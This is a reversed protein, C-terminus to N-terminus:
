KKNGKMSNLEKTTNQIDIAIQRKEQLDISEKYMEKLRLLDEEKKALKYVNLCDSFYEEKRGKNDEGLLGETEKFNLVYVLRNYEDEELVDFLMSPILEKGQSEKLYTFIKRDTPDKIYDDLIAISNFDVDKDICYNLGCVIAKTLADFKKSDKEELVDEMVQEGKELKAMDKKLADVSIKTYHSTNKLWEEKEAETKLTTIVRLANELYKKKQAADKIDFRDALIKFKFATSDLANDLAKQYENVGFRRIVEDPDLKDRLLVIKANVGEEELVNQALIAGKMGASDGDYCVYVKDCVYHMLKAQEKTLATGMSAVVNKFGADYVAIADMYGEVLILSDVNEKLKQKKVLNLGYLVKRKNFAITDSTNKYKAQAKSELTRGGFAVVQGFSDIIPIIVRNAYADYVKGDKTGAVGAEVMEEETYGKGKLYRIVSTWDPSAGLGFRTITSRSLGRNLLYSLKQSQSEKYLEKNYFIATEKLLSYARQRKQKKEALEDAGKGSFRPVEMGVQKALHEVAGMFDTSEAKEIFKIVDGSEHCGFCYYFQRIEDVAFSPTDERHFPCCGWYKNGKRTLNMYKGIVDVINVRNKLQVLFDAREM